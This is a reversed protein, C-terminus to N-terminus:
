VFVSPSACLVMEIPMEGPSAAGQVEREIMMATREMIALRRGPQERARAGHSPRGRAEGRHAIAQEARARRVFNRVRAEDGLRAALLQMDSARADAFAAAAVFPEPLVVRLTM